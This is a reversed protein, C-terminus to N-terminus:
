RKASMVQVAQLARVEMAAERALVPDFVLLRGLSPLALSYIHLLGGKERILLANVSSTRGNDITSVFRGVPLGKNDRVLTFIPMSSSEITVTYDGPKLSATDWRVQTTLTFKGTFTPLGTQAQAIAPLILSVGLTAFLMRGVALGQVKKM